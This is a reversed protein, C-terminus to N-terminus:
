RWSFSIYCNHSIRESLIVANTGSQMEYDSVACCKDEFYLNSGFYVYKLNRCDPV